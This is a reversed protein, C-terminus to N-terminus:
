GINPHYAPGNRPDVQGATVTPDRGQALMECIKKANGSLMDFCHKEAVDKSRQSNPDEVDRLTPDRGPM